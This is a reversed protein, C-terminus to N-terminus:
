AAERLKQRQESEIIAHKLDRRTNLCARYCSPSKASFVPMTNPRRFVLHKSGYECVFGLEEAWRQLELVEGNKRIARGM